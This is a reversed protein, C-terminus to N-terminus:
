KLTFLYLTKDLQTMINDKIQTLSPTKMIKNNLLFNGFQQIMFIIEKDNVNKLPIEFNFNLTHNKQLIEIINDVETDIFKYLDGSVIHRKYIKTRWHYVQILNKFALLNSVLINM